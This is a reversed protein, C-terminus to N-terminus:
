FPCFTLVGLFDSFLQSHRCARATARCPEFVLQALPRVKPQLKKILAPAISRLSRVIAFDEDLPCVEEGLEVLLRCRPDEARLVGHGFGYIPRGAKLETSVFEAVVLDVKERELRPCSSSSSSSSSSLSSSSPPCEAKAQQKISRVFELAQQNAGGHLPGGLAHMSSALSAFVSAKGSAVAKGTFTSLNGGGHDLHLV